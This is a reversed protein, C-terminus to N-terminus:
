VKIAIKLVEQTYSSVKKGEHLTMGIKKSRAIGRITKAFLFLNLCLSVLVPIGFVFLNARGDGVWCSSQDGYRLGIDEGLLSSLTLTISVILFPVGTAVSLYSLLLKRNATSIRITGHSGFTRSLDLAIMTSVTFVMLWSFHSVVAFVTCLHRSVKSVMGGFMLLCQALFLTGCLTMILHNSVQKRLSPFVFYTLLTLSLSALSLSTGACSLYTQVPSYRLFYYSTTENFSGNQSLFQCARIMGDKLLVYEDPSIIDGSAKYKLRAGEGLPIFLSMNFIASPCALHAGDCVFMSETKVNDNENQVLNYTTALVNFQERNMDDYDSSLYPETNPQTIASTTMKLTNNAMVMRMDCDNSAGCRSYISVTSLSCSRNTMSRRGYELIAADMKLATYNSELNWVFHAEYQTNYINEKCEILSTLELTSVFENLDCTQDRGYGACVGQIKSIVTFSITENYYHKWWQCAMKVGSEERACAGGIMAYGQPCTLRLCAGSYPDYVEGLPCAVTVVSVVTEGVQLRTDCQSSFDFLVSVPSLRLHDGLGLSAEDYAFDLYPCMESHDPYSGFSCAYCAPNKFGVSDMKGHIIIPATLSECAEQLQPDSSPKCKDTFNEPSETKFCPRVASGSANVPYNLSPQCQSNNLIDEFPQPNVQLDEVFEEPCMLVVPWPTLKQPNLGNCIVCFVNRYSVTNEFSLPIDELTFHVIRYPVECRERIVKDNWASPCKSILVFTKPSYTRVKVEECSFSSRDYVDLHSRNVRRYMSCDVPHEKLFKPCCDDFFTCLDDCQCTPRGYKSSGCTRDPCVHYDLCIPITLNGITVNTM